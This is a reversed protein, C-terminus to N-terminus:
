TCTKKYKNCRQLNKRCLGPYPKTKRQSRACTKKERSKTLISSDRPFTYMKGRHLSGKCSVTTTDRSSEDEHVAQIDSVHPPTLSCRASGWEKRLQTEWPKPKPSSARPASNPAKLVHCPAPKRRVSSSEGKSGQSTDGRGDTLIDSGTDCTSTVEQVM